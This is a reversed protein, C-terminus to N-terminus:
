LSDIVTVVLRNESIETWSKEQQEVSFSKGYSVSEEISSEEIDETQAEEVDDTEEVKEADVVESTEDEEAIEPEESTDSNDVKASEEADATEQLEVSEEADNTSDDVDAVVENDDSEDSVPDAVETEVSAVPATEENENVFDTAYVIPTVV